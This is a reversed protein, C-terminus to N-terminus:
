SRKYKSTKNRWEKKSVYVAEDAKKIADSAKDWEMMEYYWISITVEYETWEYSCKSAEIKKRIKDIFEFTEKWSMDESIVWVMEEWWYRFAQWNISEFSDKIIWAVHKLVVDWIHHGYTNNFNRFHDIDFFVITKMEPLNEWFVDTGNDIYFDLALRNWLKTLRDTGNMQTQYWADYALAIWMWVNKLLLIEDSTYEKHWEMCDFWVILNSRWIPIALDIGFGPFHINSIDWNNAVAQFNPNDALVLKQGVTDLWEEHVSYSLLVDFWDKSEHM